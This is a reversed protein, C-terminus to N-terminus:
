LTCRAEAPPSELDVLYNAVIDDVCADAGAFAVTHQEGDVSLLSGGLADALAVGGEYPTSPDGTISITLTDPLGEVDTAYPIGLTPEAPWFECPDRAGDPGLGADTFPAIEQIRRKLDVEQQPTNRQEDMCNIAYLAESFNPQSGDADRGGFVDNIKLLTDAQGVQLEGIGRTIVPWAASDYLGAIVAGYALDFDVKRGDSAIIPNEILPRVINQFNEVAAAPDTGLPCDPAAACAAAMEDFARQFGTFQEIRRDTTSAQPDIAGDLVMARVNQPFMEAYVSGLRTGYSQGLFNLADDGLASRLIDLDQAAERTGVHALVDEGGSREACRGVLDRAGDESLTRSGTVVTTYAEGADAEEDTFCDIAPMSAGVGRPDFGILDFNETLPSDALTTAGTAAMSMGPGGPGGPNLFLSGIREGRAPVKLMAIRATADAPNEYDLPVDVRACEFTPNSAFAQEDASTTAYGTCPEFTVDQDHFAQLEDAPAPTSESESSPPSTSCAGLLLLSASAAAVLKMTRKRHGPM